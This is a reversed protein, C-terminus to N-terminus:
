GLKTLIPISDGQTFGLTEEITYKLKRGKVQRLLMMHIEDLHNEQLTNGNGGRIRLIAYTVNIYRTFM